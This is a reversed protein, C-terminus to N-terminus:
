DSWFIPIFSLQSSKKSVWNKQMFSMLNKQNNQRWFHVNWFVPQIFLNWFVLQILCVEWRDWALAPIGRKKMKKSLITQFSEQKMNKFKFDYISKKIQHSILHCKFFFKICSLSNYIMLIWMSVVATILLDCLM